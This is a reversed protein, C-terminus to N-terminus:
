GAASARINRNGLAFTLTGILSGVVCVVTLAKGIMAPGGIHSSLVSVAVPALGIGFVTGFAFMIALFLGRLESPIVVTALTTAGLGIVTGITMFIVLLVSASIAEPMAGFLSAPISLLLLKSLASLTRAPGGGRQCLDALIGGVIAGSLGSVLLAVAMITGIRDASLAFSRAFTPAAWILAACEAISVMVVGALLPLVIGRYGWLESLAARASPKDIIVGTRAPERMCLPALLFFLLPTFMILMARHWGGPGAGALLAGGVAYTVSAGIVQGIVVVMNARGRLEPVYLDALLSFVATTTAAAALGVLCRAAFLIAFTSALATLVSGLVTLTAFLLLLSVRSRRDIVFGVPIAALVTPLALAPGQLLAMQNDSLALAGRITEQFPGVAFRAYNAATVAVALLLLQWGPHSVVAMPTRQSTLAQVKM